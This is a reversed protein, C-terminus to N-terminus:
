KGDSGADSPSQTSLKLRQCKHYAEIHQCVNSRVLELTRDMKGGKRLRTGSPYYEKIYDIELLAEESSGSLARQEADFIIEVHGSVFVVELSLRTLEFFCVGLAVLSALLAVILLKQKM